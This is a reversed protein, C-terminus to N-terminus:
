EQEAITFRIFNINKPRSIYMTWSHQNRTIVNEYIFKKKRKKKREKKKKKLRLRFKLNKEQPLCQNLGKKTYEMILKTKFHDVIRKNINKDLRLLELLLM